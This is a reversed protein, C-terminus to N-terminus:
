YQIVWEIKEKSFDVGLLTLGRTIKEKLFSIQNEKTLSFSIMPYLRASIIKKSVDYEVYYAPNKLPLNLVWPKKTSLVNEPEEHGVLPTPTPILREIKVPTPLLPLDSPGTEKKSNTAFFVFLFFLFVSVCLIALFLFVRNTKILEIM